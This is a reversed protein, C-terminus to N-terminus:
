RRLSVQYKISRSKGIVGQGIGIAGHMAESVQPGHVSVQEKKESVEASQRTALSGTLNSISIVFDNDRTCTDCGYTGTIGSVRL